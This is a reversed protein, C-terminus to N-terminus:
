PLIGQVLELIENCADSYGHSYGDYGNLDMQSDYEIQKKNIAEILMKKVENM